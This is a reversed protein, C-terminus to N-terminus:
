AHRHQKQRLELRRTDDGTSELDSRPGLGVVRHCQRGAHDGRRAARGNAIVHPGYEERTELPLPLPGVPQGCRSESCLQPHSLIMSLYGQQAGGGVSDVAHHIPDGAFHPECPAGLDLHSSLEPLHGDALAVIDGLEGDDRGPRVTGGRMMMRAGPRNAFTVHDYTVEPTTEAAVVGIRGPREDYTLRRLHLTIHVIQHRGGVRDPTLRRCRPHDACLHVASHARDDILSPISVVENVAGTVPDAELTVLV